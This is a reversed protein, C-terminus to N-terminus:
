MAKRDDLLDKYLNLLVKYSENMNYHNIVAKKGNEGMRKAEDPHEILYDICKAIQQPTDAQGPKVLLGCKAEEIIPRIAPLDSVIVPLGYYMFEFLKTPLAWSANYTDHCPVIGINSQTYIDLMQNKSINGLFEVYQWEPLSELLHRYKDSSFQGCLRLTVNNTFKLSKIIEMVGNSLSITGGYIAYISDSKNVIKLKDVNIFSHNIDFYNYVIVTKPNIKEINRCIYPTAAILADLKRFVYKQYHRLCPVIVYKTIFRKVINDNLYPANFLDSPFDEHADFIVKKGSEKLKIATPWLEPDHIHYLDADISVAKKFARKVANLMRWFRNKSKGIDHVQIGKCIEDRQGDSVVLHLEYHNSLFRCEKQFIRRDYRSHVTTIHCIKKM